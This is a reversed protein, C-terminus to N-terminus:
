GTVADCLEGTLRGLISTQLLFEQVPRPQQELVEEVMYDLVYRHGGSFRALIATPDAQGDLALAALQLGAAWGETAATLAGILDDPLARGLRDAFFTTTEDVDFRLLDAGIEALHGRARLRPLPLPPTPGARAARSPSSQPQHPRCSA